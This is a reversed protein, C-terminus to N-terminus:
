PLEWSVLAQYCCICLRTPPSLFRKWLCFGERGKTLFLASGFWCTHRGEVSGLRLVARVPLACKRQPFQLVRYGDNWDPCTLPCRAGSNPHWQALGGSHSKVGWAETEEGTVFAYHRRGRSLVTLVRCSFTQSSQGTLAEFAVEVWVGM